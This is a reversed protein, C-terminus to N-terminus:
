LAGGALVNLYVLLPIIIFRAVQILVTILGVVALLNWTLSFRRKRQRKNERRQKKEGELLLEPEESVSSAPFTQQPQWGQSTRNQPFRYVPPQQPPTSFRHDQHNQQM